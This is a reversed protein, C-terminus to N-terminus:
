IEQEVVRQPHDAFSFVSFFRSKPQEGGLLPISLLSVYLYSSLSSLSPCLSFM